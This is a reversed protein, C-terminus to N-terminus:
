NFSKQLKEIVENNLRNKGSAIVIRYKFTVSGGKQLILYQGAKLTEKNFGPEIKFIMDADLLLAYTATGRAKQLAFTRNYGFDVWDDSFLEGKINKNDFKQKLFFYIIM